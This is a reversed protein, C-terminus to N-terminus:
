TIQSRDSQPSLGAGGGFRFGVLMCDNETLTGPGKMSGYRVEM